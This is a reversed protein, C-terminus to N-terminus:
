ALRKANLAKKSSVPVHQYAVTHLVGYSPASRILFLCSGFLAEIEIQVPLTLPYKPLLLCVNPILQNSRILVMWRINGVRLILLTEIGSCLLSFLWQMKSILSQTFSTLIGLLCTMTSLTMYVSIKWTIPLLHQLNLLHCPAFGLIQGFVFKPVM